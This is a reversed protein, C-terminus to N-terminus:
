RRSAERRDAAAPPTATPPRRLVVTLQDGLGTARLLVNIVSQVLGFAGAATIRRYTELYDARVQAAGRSPPGASPARPGLRKGVDLWERLRVDTTEARVTDLGARDTAARLGRRSPLFLHEPPMVILSRSGFVRLTIGHRHPVGLLLVGGPRVLRALRRLAAAPEPLHELVDWLSVVAYRDDVLSASELTAEQVAAGSVRRATAAVDPAVELGELEAWGLTRAYALFQGAGCGVDLLPGTGALKAATALARCWSAHAHQNGGEWCLRSNQDASSRRYFDALAEPSPVPELYLSACRDCQHHLYGNKEFAGHGTGGCLPCLSSAANTKM